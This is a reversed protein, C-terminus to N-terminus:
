FRRRIDGSFDTAKDGLYAQVISTRRVGSAGGVIM